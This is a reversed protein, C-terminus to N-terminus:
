GDHMNDLSITVLLSSLGITRKDTNCSSIYSKIRVANPLVTDEHNHSIDYLALYKAATINFERNLPKLKNYM